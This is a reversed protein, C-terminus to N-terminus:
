LNDNFSDVSAEQAEVDFDEATEIREESIDYNGFFVDAIDDIQHNWNEGYLEIAAEESAIPSLVGYRGVAYVTPSTIFKVMRTAPHYVVNSGLTFSSMVEDDVLYINTWDVYWTFYVKENPFAHRKGENDLFYVARCPHNVDEGGPCVTKILVPSSATLDEHTLDTADVESTETTSDVETADGDTTESPVGDVRMVRAPGTTENGFVDVCNARISNATRDDTFTWWGEWRAEDENYTMDDEYTSSVVIVCSDVGSPDDVYAYFLQPVNWTAVLPEIASIEPGETDAAVVPSVLLSLGSVLAVLFAPLFKIANM